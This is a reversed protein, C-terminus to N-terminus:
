KGTVIMNFANEVNSSDLASTEIFNVENIQAYQKVEEQNVRRQYDALDSKNGILLIVMGQPGKMKLEQIWNEVNLFTKHNTIDYVILAGVAGRYYSSAVARYREQGATDWIQAKITAGNKSIITKTAFEVGITAKSELNFENKAFRSLLQSKGVCTDGILVIKFLFDYEQQDGGRASQKAM